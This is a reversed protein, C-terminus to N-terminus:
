TPLFNVSVIVADNPIDVFVVVGVVVVVSSYVDGDPLDCFGPVIQGINSSGVHM